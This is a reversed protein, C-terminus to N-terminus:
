QQRLCLFEESLVYLSCCNALKRILACGRGACRGAASSQCIIPRQGTGRATGTGIENCNIGMEASTQTREKISGATKFVIYREV